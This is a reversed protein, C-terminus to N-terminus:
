QYLFIANNNNLILLVEKGASRLFSDRQLIVCDSPAMRAVQTLWMLAMVM